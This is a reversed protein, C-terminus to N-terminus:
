TDVPKVGPPTTSPADAALTSKRTNSRRRDETRQISLLAFICVALMTGFTLLPLLTHITM